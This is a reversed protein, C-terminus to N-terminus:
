PNVSWVKVDDLEVTANPELAFRMRGKTFRSDSESMIHNGDINVTMQEGKLGLQVKYWINQQISFSQNSNPSIASFNWNGNEFANTALLIAQYDPSFNLVDGGTEGQFRFDLYIGPSRLFKVRFEIMGDSFDNSGFYAKAAPAVTETAIGQLVLNSKDKVIKWKGTEFAFGSAVDDEFDESFILQGGNAPPSIVTPTIISSPTLLKIVLPSNLIGVVLTGILGIVAVIVATDFGKKENIKKKEVKPM